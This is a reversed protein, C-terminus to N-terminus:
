SAKKPPNQAKFERWMKLAKSREADNSFGVTSTSFLSYTNTRINPFGRKKPDEKVLLWLGALAIDRVQCEFTTSKGSRRRYLVTKDDLLGELVPIEQKGGLKAVALIAYQRVHTVLGPMKAMEKAPKLGEKLDFRMALLLRQYGVGNGADGRGVFSGLLKRLIKVEADSNNNLLASSARYTLSYIYSDTRSTLTIQENAALFLVAALSAKQVVGSRTNRQYQLQLCRAELAAAAATDSKELARILTGESKLMEVFLRRSQKTEGVLQEFRKWGPLEFDRGGLPEEAFRALRRQFDRRKISEMIQECRSRVEADHGSEIAKELASLASLGMDVLERMARERDSFRAAGLQQVLAVSRDSTSLAPNKAQAPPATAAPLLLALTVSPLFRLAHM